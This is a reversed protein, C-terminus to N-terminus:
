RRSSRDCRSSICSVFERFRKRYFQAWSAGLAPNADLSVLSISAAGDDAPWGDDAADDYTLSVVASAFDGNSRDATSYADFNSWLGITDGGNNLRRSIESQLTIATREWADKMNQETIIVM